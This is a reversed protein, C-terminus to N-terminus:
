MGPSTACSRANKAGTASFAILWQGLYYPTLVLLQAAPLASHFRDISLIGDSILFLLAGLAAACAFRDRSILFRGMAQAAMSTVFICYVAVAIGLGPPVSGYLFLYLTVTFVSYLLWVGPRAPFPFGRGFALLYAAHALLFALLGYLFYSAPSLLLLDGLLSLLLGTSIYFAYNSRYEFWATLPLSLILLTALPKCVSFLVPHALRDFAVALIAASLVGCGAIRILRPSM